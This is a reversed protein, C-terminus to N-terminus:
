FTKLEALIRTSNNISDVYYKILNRASLSTNLASTGSFRWTPGFGTITKGATDIFISINGNLGNAAFPFDAINVNHRLRIQANQKESLNTVVGFNLSLSQNDSVTTYSIPAYYTQAIVTNYYEIINIVQASISTVRPNLNSFVFSSVTDVRTGLNSSVSVLTSSLYNVSNVTYTSLNYLNTDLNSFSINFTSLTNGICTTKSSFTPVYHYKYFFFSFSLLCQGKRKLM